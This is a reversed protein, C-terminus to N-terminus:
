NKPQSGFWQEDISQLMQEPTLQRSMRGRLVYRHEFSVAGREMLKRKFAVIQDDGFNSNFTNFLVVHQSDFRNHEAFAWLPPAPSYFWVPSGLWVTSFRKLDITRPTVEPLKRSDKRLADADLASNALGHLGLEYQPVALSYISAGLRNAVHRAALATNGSRSFYVVAIGKGTLQAAPPRGPEAPSKYPEMEGVIRAQRSEITTVGVFFVLAALGAVIVILLIWYLPTMKRPFSTM